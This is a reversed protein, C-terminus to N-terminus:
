DQLSINYHNEMYNLIDRIIPNANVVADNGVVSEGAKMQLATYYVYAIGYLAVLLVVVAFWSTFHCGGTVFCRVQYDGFYVITTYITLFYLMSKLSTQAKINAVLGLLGTITAFILIITSQLM